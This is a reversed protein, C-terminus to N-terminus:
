RCRTPRGLSHLPSSWRREVLNQRDAGRRVFGRLRAADARSQSLKDRGLVDVVACCDIVLTPTLHVPLLNASAGLPADRLRPTRPGEVYYNNEESSVEDEVPDPETDIEPDKTAISYGM